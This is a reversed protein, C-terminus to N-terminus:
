RRCRVTRSTRRPAETTTAREDLLATVQRAGPIEACVLEAYDALHRRFAPVAPAWLEHDGAGLLMEAGGAVHGRLSSPAVPHRSGGEDVYALQFLYLATNAYMGYAGDGWLHSAVPHAIAVVFLACRHLARTRRWPSISAAPQVHTDELRCSAWSAGTRGRTAAVKPAERSRDQGNRFPQMPGRDQRNRRAPSPRHLRAPVQQHPTRPQRRRRAPSNRGLPAKVRRPGQRRLRM